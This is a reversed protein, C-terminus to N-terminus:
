GRAEPMLLLTLRASRTGVRLSWSVYSFQDLLDALKRTILKDGALDSNSTLWVIPDMLSPLDAMLDMLPLSSSMKCMEGAQPPPPPPPVKPPPPPPPCTLAVASILDLTGQYLVSGALFDSCGAQLALLVEGRVPEPCGHCAPAAPQVVRGM